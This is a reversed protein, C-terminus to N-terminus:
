FYAQTVAERSLFWGKSTGLAQPFKNFEVHGDFYLTNAGGPVHNFENVDLGEGAEGGWASDWMVPTSSQAVAAAAPNNIDTIAFREIGEKLKMLQVNGFGTLPITSGGSNPGMKSWQQCGLQPVVTIGFAESGFEVAEAETAHTAISLEQLNLVNATWEAKILYPYYIYSWGPMRLVSKVPVNTQGQPCTGLPTGTLMPEATSTVWSADIPGQQTTCWMMRAIGHQYISTHAEGDSPCVDIFPDSLYEPYLYLGDPGNFLGRTANTGGATVDNVNRNYQVYNHVWKGKNEGAFMKYVIGFQKLNNPCSARHAAERARSLAPLLIAALIGIIAIVVLLEILTFGKKRM